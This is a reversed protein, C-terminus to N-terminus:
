SHGAPGPTVEGHLWPNGLRTETTDANGRLDTHVAPAQALGACASCGGPLVDEEEEEREWERRAGCRQWLLLEGRGAGRAQGQRCRLRAGAGACIGPIGGEGAAIHERFQQELRKDKWNPNVASSLYGLSVPQLECHM